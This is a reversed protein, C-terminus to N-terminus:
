YLYQERTTDIYARTWGLIVQGTNFAVPKAEHDPGRFISGVVAGTPLQIEIEWDAMRIARSRYEDRGTLQAYDFLTPIIYGTTEPYPPFWGHLLSFGLSVGKGGCQDHARCIWQIAAELHRRSSDPKSRLDLRDRIMLGVISPHLLRTSAQALTSLPLRRLREFMSQM